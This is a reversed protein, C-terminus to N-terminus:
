NYNPIIKNFDNLKYIKIFDYQVYKDIINILYEYNNNELDFYLENEDSNNEIIKSISLSYLVDSFINRKGDIINLNDYKYKFCRFIKKLEYDYEFEMDCEYEYNYKNKQIQVYNYINPEVFIKIDSTIKILVEHYLPFTPLYKIGATFTYNCGGFEMYFDSKSDIVVHYYQNLFLLNEISYKTKLKITNFDLEIWKEFNIPLKDTDFSIYYKKYIEKKIPLEM